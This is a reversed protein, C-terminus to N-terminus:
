KWFLSLIQWNFHKDTNKKIFFEVQVLFDNKLFFFTETNLIFKLNKFSYFPLYIKLIIFNKNKKLLFVKDDVNPLLEFFFSILFSNIIPQKRILSSLCFTTNFLMKNLNNKLKIFNLNPFSNSILYFLFFAKTKINYDNSNEILNSHFFNLLFSFRINQILPISHISFINYKNIIDCSNFYYFFVSSDKKNYM